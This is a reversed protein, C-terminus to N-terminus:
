ATAPKTITVLQRAYRVAFAALVASIGAAALVRIGLGEWGLAPVTPELLVLALVIASVTLQMMLPITLPPAMYRAIATGGLWLLTFTVANMWAAAMYGYVPVLAFTTAICAASVMISYLTIPRVRKLFFLKRTDSLYHGYIYHALILFPAVDGAPARTPGLVLLLAPRAAMVAWVAVAGLGLAQVATANYHMPDAMPNSRKWRYYMPAYALDISVVILGMLIGSVYGLQYTGVTALSVFRVLIFPDAQTRLWFALDYFLLPAGYGLNERWLVGPAVAREAPERPLLRFRYVAAAAMFSLLSGLAVGCAAGIAGGHFLAVIAIGFLCQGGAQGLKLLTFGVADNRMRHLLVVILLFSDSAAILLLLLVYPWWDLAGATLVPWLPITALLIAVGVGLTLVLRQFVLQELFYRLRGPSEEYDIYHRSAAKSLGMDLVLNVVAMASVFVAYRGYQDQPMLWAYIPLVVYAVARQLTNGIVYIGTNAVFSRKM